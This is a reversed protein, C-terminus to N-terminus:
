GWMRQNTAVANSYNSHAHEAIDRLQGLAERLQQAGTDWQQQAVEQASAADGHWSLGLATMSSQVTALTQELTSHFASMQDVGTLLSDLDVSFEAM